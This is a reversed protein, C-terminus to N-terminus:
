QHTQLSTSVAQAEQNTRELQNSGRSQVLFIVVAKKFGLQHGEKGEEGEVELFCHLMNNYITDSTLLDNLFCQIPCNPATFLKHLTSSAKSALYVAVEPSPQLAPRRTIPLVNTRQAAPKEQSHSFHSTVAQFHFHFQQM